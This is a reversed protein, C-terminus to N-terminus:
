GALHLLIHDPDPRHYRLFPMIQLGVVYVGNERDAFSLDTWLILNVKGKQWKSVLSYAGDWDKYKMEDDDQLMVSDFRILAKDYGFSEAWDRGLSVIGFKGYDFADAFEPANDSSYVGAFYDWEGNSGSVSVSLPFYEQGFWINLRSRKGRELTHLKKSSTSGDLTFPASQKGVKFKLGNDTTWSLYTDTM